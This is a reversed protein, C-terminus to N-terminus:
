RIEIEQNLSYDISELSYKYSKLENDASRLLKFCSVGNGLKEFSLAADRLGKISDLDHTTAFVQVNNKNAASIVSAWLGKMVSYHFGNSIEDVLVIGDKCEYITTLISLIKRVGDGMMNIPIRKNLGIDVLVENQSLVFDKLRPEILKLAEIIFAEDKNKIVDVLGEVSTYFDFKPNLYRCTLKEKYHTDLRVRQEFTNESSHSMILASEYTHGDIKSKLVLGYKNNNNNSAINNEESLLDIKSGSSEFTSIQLERKEENVASIVIPRSVDLAYFDLIVDSPELRRYNRMININLPLKPNSLGTILFVADLLSSKGCNNKGFFLNVQKLGDIKSHRIGRFRSIEIDNM